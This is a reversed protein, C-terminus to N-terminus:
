VSPTYALNYLQRICPRSVERGCTAETAKRVVRARYLSLAEDVVDTAGFDARNVGFSTLVEADVKAVVQAGILSIERNM